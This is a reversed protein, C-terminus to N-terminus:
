SLCDEPMRNLRRCAQKCFVLGLKRMGFKPRWNITDLFVDWFQAIGAAQKYSQLLGGKTSRLKGSSCSILCPIFLSFGQLDLFRSKRERSTNGLSSFHSLFHVKVIIENLEKLVRLPIIETGWVFAAWLLHSVQGRWGQTPARAPVQQQSMGVAVGGLHLLLVLEKFSM